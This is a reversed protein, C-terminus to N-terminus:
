NKTQYTKEVEIEEERAMQAFELPVYLRSADDVPYMNGEEDYLVNLAGFRVQRGRGRGRPGKQGSKSFTGRSSNTRSSGTSQSGTQPYDRALHGRVGCRYCALPDFSISAGRRGGSGRGHGGSNGMRAGGQGRERGMGGGWFGRGRNSANSGKHRTGSSGIKTAPRRSAKVALETTEALSVGQAISKLYQLSVFHALEAQLGWIFQNLMMSEDYSEVRGLLTGFQSAYDQVLWQGQTISMM